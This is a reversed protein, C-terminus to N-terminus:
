EWVTEDREPIDFCFGISASIYLGKFGASVNGPQGYPQSSGKYRWINRGPDFLYFAQLGTYIFRGIRLASHVAPGAVFARHVFIRDPGPELFSISTNTYKVSETAYGLMGGVGAHFRSGNVLPYSVRYTAQANRYKLSGSDSNHLTVSPAWGIRIDQSFLGSNMGTSFEHLQTSSLSTSYGNMAVHNGLIDPSISSVTYQYAYYFYEVSAIAKTKERTIIDTKVTDENDDLNRETKIVVYSFKEALAPYETEKEQVPYLYTVKVPTRDFLEAVEDKLQEDKSTGAPNVYERWDAYFIGISLVSDASKFYRNIVKSVTSHYGYWGCDGNQEIYAVHCRGFQGYFKEGPNNSLLRSLNRFIMEERWVYQYTTNDYNEWVIYERLWSIAEKLEAPGAIFYHDFDDQLSDYAKLFERITYQVSYPVSARYYNGSTTEDRAKDYDKLGELVMYDATGQIAEIYPRISEPPMTAPLLESLRIIPLDNFREVDIGYARIKQSDSLTRNFAKMRRFLEMYRPSTTAKLVREAMTDTESIYRNLYHARADSLEIIFNRTGNTRNLYRLMKLELMANYKVYSHNEGTMVLRKNKVVSDLVEFGSFDDNNLVNIAIGRNQAAIAESFLLLGFLCILSRM